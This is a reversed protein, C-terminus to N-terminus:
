AFTLKFLMADAYSKFAINYLTQKDAGWSTCVLRGGREEVWAMADDYKENAIPLVLQFHPPVCGIM